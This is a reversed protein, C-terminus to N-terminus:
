VKNTNRCLFVGFNLQHIIRHKLLNNMKKNTVNFLFVVICSNKFFKSIFNDGIFLIIACVVLFVLGYNKVYATAIVM